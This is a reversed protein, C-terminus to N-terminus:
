SHDAPRPISRLADEASPCSCLPNPTTADSHSKPSHGVMRQLSRLFGRRHHHQINPLTLADLISLM